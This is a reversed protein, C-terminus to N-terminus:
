LMRTRGRRPRINVLVINEIFKFDHRKEVFSVLLALGM